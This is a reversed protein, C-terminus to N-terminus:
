GSALRAWLAGGGVVLGAVVLGLQVRRDGPGLEHDKGVVGPRVLGGAGLVLGVGGLAFLWADARAVRSQTAEFGAILLGVALLLGARARQSLTAM